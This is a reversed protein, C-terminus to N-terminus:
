PAATITTPTVAWWPPRSLRGCPSPCCASSLLAPLSGPHRAGVQAVARGSSLRTRRFTCARHAGHPAGACGQRLWSPSSPPGQAVLEGAASLDVSCYCAPVFARSGSPAARCAANSGVSITFALSGSGLGWHHLHVGLPLPAQNGSGGRTAAHVTPRSVRARRSSPWRPRHLPHTPCRRRDRVHAPSTGRSRRRPALGLPSPAAPTTPPRSRRGCPSPRCAGAVPPVPPLRFASTGLTLWQPM